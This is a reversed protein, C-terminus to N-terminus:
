ETSGNRFGYSTDGSTSASVTGRDIRHFPLKNEHKQQVAVAKKICCDQWYFELSTQLLNSDAPNTKFACSHKFINYLCIQIFISIFILFKSM